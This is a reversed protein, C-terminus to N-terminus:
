RVRTLPAAFTNCYSASAGSYGRNQWYALNRPKGHVKSEGARSVADLWTDWDIGPNISELTSSYFVGAFCEAQMELRHSVIDRATGRARWYLVNQADLIGALQQVHHGWEHAVSHAINMKFPDNLDRKMIRIAVTRQTPCYQAGNTTIKGCVSNSGTTIFIKPPTYRLGASKFRTAWFRNACNAMAKHFYKLSATSGARIEPINCSQPSTTGSRYIKNKVLVAPMPAAEVKAPSASPRTAATATGSLALGTIMCASVVLFPIRM